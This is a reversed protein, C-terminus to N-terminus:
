RLGKSLPKLSGLTFGLADVARSVTITPNWVLKVDRPFFLERKYEQSEVKSLLIDASDAAELSHPGYPVYWKPGCASDGNYYLTKTRDELIRLRTEYNKSTKTAICGIHETSTTTLSKVRTDIYSNVNFFWRIVLSWPYVTAATTFPNTNITDSIRAEASSWRGKVTIKVSHDIVGVDYFCNDTPSQEPQYTPRVSKRVTKYKGKSEMLSMVDRISYYIPMLGYRYSLWLDLAAKHDKLLSKAEQFDRLIKYGKKLLDAVFKVTSTLEVIEEGLNYAQFLEQYAASKASEIDASDINRSLQFHPLNPYQSRWYALDGQETYQLTKFDHGYAIERSQCDRCSGNLLGNPSGHAVLAGAIRTRNISGLYNWEKFDGVHMETMKIRGSARVSSFNGDTPAVRFSGESFPVYSHEKSKTVSVTDSRTLSSVTNCQVVPNSVTVSATVSSSAGIPFYTEM